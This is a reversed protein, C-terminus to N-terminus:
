PILLEQEAEHAASEHLMQNTADIERPCHVAFEGAIGRRGCM